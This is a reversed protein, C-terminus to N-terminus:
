WSSHENHVKYLGERYPETLQSIGNDLDSFQEQTYSKIANEIEVSNNTACDIVIPNFDAWHPASDDQGRQYLAVTGVTCGKKFKKLPVKIIKVVPYKGDAKRLDTAVAVLTPNTQIVIGPNSDGFQFHEKRNIWYVWNFLIAVALLLLFFLSYQLLVLFLFFVSALILGWKPFSMIYIFPNLSVNGPNSAFTSDDTTYTRTRGM